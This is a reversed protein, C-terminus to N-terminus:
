KCYKKLMKDADVSGFTSSKQWCECAKKKNKQAKHYKGLVFYAEFSNPNIKLANELNQITHAFNEQKQKKTINKTDNLNLYLEARGIYADIEKPNLSIAKDWDDLAKKNEGLYFYAMGRNYYAYPYIKNDIVAGNFWMLAVDYRESQIEISGLLIKAEAYIPQIALAKQANEEAKKIEGLYFFVLAKNYYVDAQQPLIRLSQNFDHLANRYKSEAYYCLGRKKYALSNTTDIKIFENFKQLANGLNKNDYLLLAEELVRDAKQAYINTNFCM